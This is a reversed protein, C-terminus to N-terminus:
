TTARYPATRSQTVPKITMMPTRVAVTRGLGGYAARSKTTMMPLVALSASGWLVSLGARESRRVVM